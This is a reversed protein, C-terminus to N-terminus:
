QWFSGCRSKLFNLIQCLPLKAEETNIRDDSGFSRLPLAQIRRHGVHHRIIPSIADTMLHRFASMLLDVIVRNAGIDSAGSRFLLSTPRITAWLSCDMLIHEYNYGM